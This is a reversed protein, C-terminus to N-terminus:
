ARDSRRLVPGRMVKICNSAIQATRPYSRAVDLLVRAFLTRLLVGRSEGNPEHDQSQFQCPIGFGGANSSSAIGYLLERCFSQNRSGCFRQQAVM